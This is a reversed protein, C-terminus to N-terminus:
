DGVSALPNTKARYLYQGQLPELRMRLLSKFQWPMTCLVKKERNYRKEGIESKLSDLIMLMKKKVILWLSARNLQPYQSLLANIVYSLHSELNAHIFKNRIENDDETDIANAELSLFYGQRKLLARKVRIGGLDRNLNKVPMHNHDFVMFTNQQHSELALGYKLYLSMQGSLLTDCYCQFYGIPSVNSSELIEILLPKHTIPSRSFLSCVSVATENEKVTHNSNERFLTSLHKGETHDAHVGGLDSMMYLTHNFHKEHELILALLHSLRPGNKVSAPSVTRLASTTHIGTALKIHPADPDDTVVTRFSMSPTVSQKVGLSVILGEDFQEKYLTPLTHSLQWPHVPLAYFHAPKKHQKRLGERWFAMEKPFRFNTFQEYDSVSTKAFRRDIALWEIDFRPQFEPSYQLVERPSMGMKAHSNPHYPHGEAGWQEFFVTREHQSLQTLSWYWLSKAESSRLREDLTYRYAMALALNFMSTEIEDSLLSWAWFRASQQHKLIQSKVQNLFVLPCATQIDQEILGETQAAFKLKKLTDRRAKSIFFDLQLPTLNLGIEFLWLRIQQNLGTDIKATIMLSFHSHTPKLM